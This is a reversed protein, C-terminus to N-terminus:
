ISACWRETREERDTSFKAGVIPMPRVARLYLLGIDRSMGPGHFLSPGPAIRIRGYELTRVAHIV